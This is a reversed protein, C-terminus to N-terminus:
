KHDLKGKSTSVNLWKIIIIITAIIEQLYELGVDLVMVVARYFIKVIKPM